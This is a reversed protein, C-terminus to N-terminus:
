SGLPGDGLPSVQSRREKHGTSISDKALLPRYQARGDVLSSAIALLGHLAIGCGAITVVFGAREIVESADGVRTSIETLGFEHPAVGGFSKALEVFALTSSGCRQIESFCKQLFAM